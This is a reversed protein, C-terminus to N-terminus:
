KKLYELIINCIDELHAVRYLIYGILANVDDHDPMWEKPVDSIINELVRESIKNKFNFAYRELEEKSINMNHFFMSYIYSNEELIRMSSYDKEDIATRLCQANWIAQNIFVHSHDIVQLKIDNKYYQVLLNASNRDTNFIVHDLLLIKYFDEKNKMLPIITEVLTVSAVNEAGRQRIIFSLRRYKFGAPTRKVYPGHCKAVDPM